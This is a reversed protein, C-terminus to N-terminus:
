PQIRLILGAPNPPGVITVGGLDPAGAVALAAYVATTGGAISWGRDDGATGLVKAWRRTGGPDYSAIVADVGGAYDGGTEIAGGVWGSVLLTDSSADYVLDQPTDAGPSGIQTAWMVGGDSGRLKAVFIDSAGPSAILNVAGFAVQDHFSGAIYIDGAADSAVVGGRDELGGGFRVSWGPVGDTSMRAIWVDLAGASTMAGDGLDLTGDFFGATVLDGGVTAIATAEDRGPSGYGRATQLEGTFSNFRAFVVDRGGASTFAQTDLVTSTEYWGMTYVVSPGLATDVFKDEGPGVMRKAWMVGSPTYRGLFGDSTASTTSGSDVPGLGIDYRNNAASGYAVGHALPTGNADLTDLFAFENGEGGLQSAFVFGPDDLGYSAVVSDTGGTPTLIGGGLDAPATMYGTVVVGVSGEVVGTPAVTSLSRAWQVTGPPDAPRADASAADDGGNGDATQDSVSGCAACAVAVTAAFALRDRM